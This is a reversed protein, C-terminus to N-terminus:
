INGWEKRRWKYVCLTDIDKFGVSESSVLFSFFFVLSRFLSRKGNLLQANLTSDTTTSERNDQRSATSASMHQGTHIHTNPLSSRQKELKANRAIEPPVWFMDSINAPTTANSYKRDLAAFTTSSFMPRTPKLLSTSHKRTFPSSRTASSTTTEATTTTDNNTKSSIHESNKNNNNNNNSTTIAHKHHLPSPLAPEGCSKGNFIGFRHHHQQKSSSSNTVAPSNSNSEPTAKLLSPPLDSGSSVSSSPPGRTPTAAFSWKKAIQKKTAKHCSSSSISTDREDRAVISCRRQKDHMRTPQPQTHAREDEEEERMVSLMEDDGDGDDDNSSETLTNRDFKVSLNSASALQQHKSATQQQQKNKNRACKLNSSRTENVTSLHVATAVVPSPSDGASASEGAILDNGAAAAATATAGDDNEDIRQHTSSTALSSDSTEKYLLSRFGSFIQSFIGSDQSSKRSSESKCSKRRPYQQQQQQQQAQPHHHHHHHQHHPHHPHSHALPDGGSGDITKYNHRDEKSSTLSSDSAASTLKRAFSLSMKKNSQQQQQQQQQQHQHQEALQHCDDYFESCKSLMPTRKENSAISSSNNSNSSSGGHEFSAPAQLKSCCGCSSSCCCVVGGDGGGGKRTMLAGSASAIEKNHKNNNKNKNVLEGDDGNESSSDDDDEEDENDIDVFAGCGADNADGEAIHCAKAKLTSHQHHHHHSSAASARGKRIQRIVYCVLHVLLALMITFCVVIIMIYSLKELCNSM